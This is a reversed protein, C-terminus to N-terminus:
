INLIKIFFWCNEHFFEPEKSMETKKSERNYVLNTRQFKESHVPLHTILELVFGNFVRFGLGFFSSLM